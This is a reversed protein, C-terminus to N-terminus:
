AMAGERVLEGVCEPAPHSQLWIVVGLSGRLDLAGRERLAATHSSRLEIGVDAAAESANDYPRVVGAYLVSVPFAEVGEREPALGAARAKKLEAKEGGRATFPKRDPHDIRVFEPVHSLFWRPRFEAPTVCHEYAHDTFEFVVPRKM